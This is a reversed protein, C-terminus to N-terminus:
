DLRDGTQTDWIGSYSHYLPNSFSCQVFGDASAPTYFDIQGFNFFDLTFAIQDSPTTKISISNKQYPTGGDLTDSATIFTYFYFIKENEENIRNM